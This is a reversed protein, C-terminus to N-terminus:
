SDLGPHLWFASILRFVVGSYMYGAQIKRNSVDQPQIRHVHAHAHGSYMTVNQRVCTARTNQITFTNQIDCHTRFINRHIEAPYTPYMYQIRICFVDPYM